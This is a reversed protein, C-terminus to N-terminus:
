DSSSDSKVGIGLSLALELGEKNTLGLEKAVEYVHIKKLM